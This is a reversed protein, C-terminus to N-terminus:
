DNLLEEIREYQKHSDDGFFRLEPMKKLKNRIRASLAKRVEWSNENLTEIAEELKSEPLISIYVRAISLDGTMRVVTVTLLSGKFYNLSGSLIMSLEEKVLRAVKKQVNTESM